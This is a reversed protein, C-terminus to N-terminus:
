IAAARTSPRTCDVRPIFERVEDNGLTFSYTYYCTMTTGDSCTQSTQGTNTFHYAGTVDPKLLYTTMDREQTQGSCGFGSFTNNYTSHYTLVMNGSPTTAFNELTTGDSCLTGDPSCFHFDFKIAGTNSQAQAAFPAVVLVAAAVLFVATALTTRRSHSM